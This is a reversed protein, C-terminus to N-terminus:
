INVSVFFIGAIILYLPIMKEAPCQDIYTAGMGIMAIPIALCFILAYSLAFCLTIVAIFNLFYDWEKDKTLM